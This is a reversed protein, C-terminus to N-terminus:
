KQEEKVPEKPETKPEQKASEPKGAKESEPKGAKESEPKGAKPAVFKGKKVGLKARVEEFNKSINEPDQKNKLYASFQKEYVTKKEKKLLAAYASIHSGTIKEETPLAKEGHPIKMGADLAGNLAAYLKSSNVPEHVGIDLVAETKGAKIARSGCLAGTLYAAPMNACSFKWGLKKLEQSIASTIIKDGKASYEFLQVRINKLSKRVVLRPKESKLLRLRRQYNTKGQKRRKFSKPHQKKM